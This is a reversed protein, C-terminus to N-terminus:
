IQYEKVERVVLNIYKQAQPLLTLSLGKGKYVQPREKAKYVEPRHM